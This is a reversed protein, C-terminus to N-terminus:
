FWCHGSNHTLNAPFPVFQCHVVRDPLVQEQLSPGVLGSVDLDLLPDLEELRTELVLLLVALVRMWDLVACKVELTGEGPYKCGKAVSRHTWTLSEAREGVLSSQM